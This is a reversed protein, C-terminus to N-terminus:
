VTCPLRRGAVRCEQDNSSHLESNSGQSCPGLGMLNSQDPASRLSALTGCSFSRLERLHPATISFYSLHSPFSSPALLHPSKSARLPLPTQSIRAHLFSSNHLHLNHTSSTHHWCRHTYERTPGCCTPLQCTHSRRSNPTAPIEQGKLSLTRCCPPRRHSIALWGPEGWAVEAGPKAM